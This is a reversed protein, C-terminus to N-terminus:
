SPALAFSSAAMSSSSQNISQRSFLEITLAALFAPISGQRHVHVQVLDDVCHLYASEMIM